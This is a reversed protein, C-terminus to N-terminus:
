VSPNRTVLVGLVWMICVVLDTPLSITCRTVSARGDLGRAISTTPSTLEPRSALVADFATAFVAIRVAVAVVVPLVPLGWVTSSVRTSYDSRSGESRAM